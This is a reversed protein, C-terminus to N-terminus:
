KKLNIFYNEEGNQYNLQKLNRLVEGIEDESRGMRHLVEAYFGSFRDAILTPVEDLTRKRRGVEEKVLVKVRPKGSGRSKIVEKKEYIPIEHLTMREKFEVYVMAFTELLEEDKLNRAIERM